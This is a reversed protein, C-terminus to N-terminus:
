IAVRSALTSSPRGLVSRRSGEIVPSPQMDHERMCPNPISSPLYVAIAHSTCAIHLFTVKHPLQSAQFRVELMRM